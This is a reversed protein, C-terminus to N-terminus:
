ASSLTTLIRNDCITWKPTDSRGEASFRNKTMRAHDATRRYNRHSVRKVDIKDIQCGGDKGNLPGVSEVLMKLRLWLLDDMMNKQRKPNVQTQLWQRGPRCAHAPSRHAAAFYKKQNKGLREPSTAGRCAAPM